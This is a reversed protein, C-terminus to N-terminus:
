RPLRCVADYFSTILSSFWQPQEGIQGIHGGTRTALVHVRDTASASWAVIAVAASPLGVGALRSWVKM